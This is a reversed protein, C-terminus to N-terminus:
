RGCPRHLKTGAAVVRDLNEEVALRNDGTVFIVVPHTHILVDADSHGALGRDNPVVIGGIILPRAADPPAFSHVDYGIGVRIADSQPM